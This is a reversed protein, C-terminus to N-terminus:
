LDAAPRSVSAAISVLVALHIDAAALALLLSNVLPNM